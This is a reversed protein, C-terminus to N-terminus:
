QYDGEDHEPILFDIPKGRWTAKVVFSHVPGGGVVLIGLRSLRDFLGVVDIESIQRIRYLVVDCDKRDGDKYLLGGTLAVHAGFSPSNSEVIKCLEIAEALTWMDNM